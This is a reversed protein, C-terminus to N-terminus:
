FFIIASGLIRSYNKTLNALNNYQNKKKKM